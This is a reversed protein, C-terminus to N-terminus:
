FKPIGLRRGWQIKKAAYIFTFVYADRWNKDGSRAGTGTDYKNTPAGERDLHRDALTAAMPDFEERTIQGAALEQDFNYYEGGVDDIYDTTTYRSGIEIGISWDKTLTYKFGIGIPFCLEFLKYKPPNLALGQGETGLPQLQYWKGDYKTSPNFYFGGVGVFLYANILNRFSARSVAYRSGIKEKIFSYELQFSGEVIPSRFHLNRIKRQWTGAEQDDGYLMGGYVSTKLSLKEKLKCRLGAQIVFRTTGIDLDRFSLFHSPKSSGGGLDGFFNTPGAGFTVDWRYARWRQAEALDPLIILFAILLLYTKKM